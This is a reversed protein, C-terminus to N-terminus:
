SPDSTVVSRFERRLRAHAARVLREAEESTALGLASAIDEASADKELRLGLARCQDEPLNGKAWALMERATLEKTIQPRTGPGRSGPPLTGPEVLEAPRKGGQRPGTPVYGEQARMYDIAVRKTVVSLWPLLRLEPKERRERRYLKLRRFADQRLRAMVLLVVGRRDDDRQSLPGLLRRRKVLADLRPDLQQWLTQWAAEDGDCVRAVLHELEEDGGSEQAPM